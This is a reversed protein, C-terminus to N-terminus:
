KLECRLRFNPVIPNISTTLKGPWYCNGCTLFQSPFNLKKSTKWILTRYHVVQRSEEGKEKIAISPWSSAKKETGDVDQLKNKLDRLGMPIIVTIVCSRPPWSRCFSSSVKLDISSILMRKTEITHVSNWLVSLRQLGSLFKSKYVRKVHSYYPRNMLVDSARKKKDRLEEITLILYKM